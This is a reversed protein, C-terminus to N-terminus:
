HTFRRVAVARLAAGKLYGYQHGYNFGQFWAYSTDWECDDGTWYSAEKVLSRHENYIVLGEFRNMLVGGLSKAWEIQDALPLREDNVGVVVSHEVTGNSHIRGGLYVEGEALKLAAHVAEKLPTSM